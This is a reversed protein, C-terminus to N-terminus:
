LEGLVTELHDLAWDLDDQSVVLPPALRLTTEHTEKALV